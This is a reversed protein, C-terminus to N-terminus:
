DHVQFQGDVMPSVPILSFLEADKGGGIHMDATWGIDDTLALQYTDGKGAEMASRVKDVDTSGVAEAANAYALVTDYALAYMYLGSTVKVNAKNLAQILNKVGPRDAATTQVKYSTLLVGKTEEGASVTKSLDNVTTSPDGFFPVSGLGAKIRSELIYAPHVFDNFVVADPHKDGIRALPGTMEVADPEYSEPIVTLGAAEFTKKYQSSLAEGFAGTATLVGIRKYGQELLKQAIFEAMTQNGVGASFSYPFASADGVQPASANNLSIVKGRTTLSLMALTESSTSGAWVLDPAGNRLRNQLNSVAKTPVSENNEVELKMKRGLLGGHDNITAVAADIGDELASAFEASSGSRGLSAYLVFDKGADGGANAGESSATCGTVFISAAAALGVASVLRRRWGTRRFTATNKM